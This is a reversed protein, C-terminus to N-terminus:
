SPVLGFEAIFSMTLRCALSMNWRGGPISHGNVSRLSGAFRGTAIGGGGIPVIEDDFWIDGIADVERGALVIVLHLFDGAPKDIIAYVGGKKGIEGYIVSWPETPQRVTITRDRAQQTFDPVGPGKKKFLISSVASLALTIVAEIVFTLITATVGTVGIATIIAAAVATPM